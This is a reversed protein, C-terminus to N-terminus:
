GQKAIIKDKIKDYLSKPIIKSKVLDDKGKYPRGAIIKAARKDGIGPLAGLEEASASNLDVLAAKPAAAAKDMAKDKAAAASKEMAPAAMKDDAQAHGLTLALAAATILSLIRM